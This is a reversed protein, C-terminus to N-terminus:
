LDRIGEGSPGEGRWCLEKGTRKELVGSGQCTMSSPGGVIHRSAYM